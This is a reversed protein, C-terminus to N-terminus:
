LKFSILLILEHYKQSVINYNSPNEKELHDSSFRSNMIWASFSYLIIIIIIIQTYLMTILDSGPNIRDLLQTM